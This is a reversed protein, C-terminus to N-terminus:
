PSFVQSPMPKAGVLRQLQFQPQRLHGGQLLDFCELGPADIHAEPPDADVVRGDDLTDQHFVTQHRYQGGAM